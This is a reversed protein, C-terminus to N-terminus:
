KRKNNFDIILIKAPKKPKISINNLKGIAQKKAYDYLRNGTFDLSEVFHSPEIYESDYVDAIAFAKDIISISLSPNNENDQYNRHGKQTLELLIDIVQKKIKDEQFLLNRKLCYDDVVKAIIQKLISQEPEKVDIITFRRKLADTSFYKNYEIDTTTGIVKLDSRTLYRKLIAAMDVDRKNSSGTGYIDHIEDIFLIVDYKQCTKMLNKMNEEFDGVWRCGTSVDNPMVELIIKNKLFKPVQNNQIRYALEDVIATKGVGSEGVLLPSVKEQALTIMLNKVEKERGITPSTPYQKKNLIVGFKELEGIEEQSLQKLSVNPKINKKAIEVKKSLEPTETKQPQASINTTTNKLYLEKFENIQAESYQKQFIMAEVLNRGDHDKKSSDFGKELLLKYINIVEGLYDDSYIATHMITDLDSDIHNVNLGYECALNIIKIIFEESYGAYLATQIFIYDFEDRTNPNIGIDLLSKVALLCKDEDYKNDVLIHLLTQKTDDLIQLNGFVKKLQNRNKYLDDSMTLITKNITEKDLM